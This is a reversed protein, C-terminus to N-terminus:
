RRCFFARVLVRKLKPWLAVVVSKVVDARAGAFIGEDVYSQKIFYLLIELQKM